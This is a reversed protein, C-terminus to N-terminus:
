VVIAEQVQEDREMRHVREELPHRVPWEVVPGRVAANGRYTLVVAVLHNRPPHRKEVDVAVAPAVDDARVAVVERRAIEVRHRPHSGLVHRHAPVRATKMEEIHGIADMEAPASLKM